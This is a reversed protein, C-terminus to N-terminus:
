AIVRTGLRSDRTEHLPSTVAWLMADADAGHVVYAAGVGASLTSLVANVKPIMGAEFRGESQLRLLEEKTTLHLLEQAAFDSYIGPVDTLFVIRSAEIAGALAGAALDANINYREQGEGVGIPAIVPLLGEDLRKLVPAPNVRTVQGVRGLGPVGTAYLIDDAGSMGTTRFGGNALAMALEQNVEKALVREVIDMAEITTVRQGDVFPAQIGAEKLAATIRPGGGHVLVVPVKLRHLESLVTTISDLHQGNLSGGVKLLVRGRLTTEDKRWLTHLRRSSAMM